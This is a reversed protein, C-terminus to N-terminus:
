MLPTSLEGRKMSSTSPGIQGCPRSVGSPAQAILLLLVDSMTEMREAPVKKPASM